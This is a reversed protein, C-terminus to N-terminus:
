GRVEGRAGFECDTQALLSHSNLQHRRFLLILLFLRTMLCPKAGVARAFCRSTCVAFATYQCALLDEKGSIRPPVDDAFREGLALNVTM